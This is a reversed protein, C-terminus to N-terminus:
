KIGLQKGRYGDKVVVDEVHGVVGCGHIYKFELLLTATGIISNISTDEIVLTHITALQQQLQYRQEFQQFTIDGVRSLQSLITLFGTHYDNIHLYRIHLHTDLNHAVFPPYSTTPLQSKPIVYSSAPQTYQTCEDRNNTPSLTSHSSCLQSMLSHIRHHVISPLSPTISTSISTSTSSTTSSICKNTSTYYYNMLETILSIFLRLLSSHIGLTDVGEFRQEKQRHRHQISSHIFSHISFDGSGGGGEWQQMPIEEIEEQQKEVSAYVDCQIGMYMTFPVLTQNDKMEKM